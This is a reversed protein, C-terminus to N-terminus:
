VGLRVGGVLARFIAVVAALGIIWPWLSAEIWLDGRFEAPVVGSVGRITVILFL